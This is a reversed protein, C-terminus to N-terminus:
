TKVFTEGDGMMMQQGAWQQRVVHRDAASGSKRGSVTVLSVQKSLVLFGGTREIVIGLVVVVCRVCM